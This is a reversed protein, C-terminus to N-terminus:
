PKGSKGATFEPPLPYDVPQVWVRGYDAVELAPEGPKLQYKPNQPQVISYQKGAADIFDVRVGVADVSALSGVWAAGTANYINQKSVSIVTVPYYALLNPNVARSYGITTCGSVLFIGLGILLLKCLSNM